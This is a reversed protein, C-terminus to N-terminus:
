KVPKPDVQHSQIWQNFEDVPIPRCIHFGQAQECNLSRLVDLTEDNEVGEAVVALGFSHALGITSRVIVDDAEDTLMDCVFSRDIKLTQIPLKKLYSLSSYGTGFDDIALHIGLDHFDAVVQMARQPDTIIASETIEIELLHNPIDFEKLLASVQEPCRLDVLNRASLNVAVPIEYGQDLWNRVQQLATRIVWSSLPHIIETMEALPIFDGPPVMGHKPHQWRLLAECGTCVGTALDIRPQYYLMLHNDRMAVSLDALMLLRQTSHSDYNTDYFAHSQGHTKAYYMAVDSCRLLAHSNEGHDPYLAIGISAGIELEMGEISLPKKLSQNLKQALDVAAEKNPIDYQLVAFEDGGLRYLEAREKELLINMRKAMRQLVVDGIGHGLTDNVDKFRNLDLLFVALQKNNDTAALIGQSAMKHLSERNPLATLADHSAQYELKAQSELLAAEASRRASVDRVTGMVCYDGDILVRSLTVEADFLEGDFRRHVWEFTLQKGNLTAALNVEALKESESGDPQVHPSIREARIGILQERTCRFMTTSVPNCEIITGAKLIFISDMTSEFLTRFRSERDRMSNFLYLQSLLESISAIFDMEMPSWKRKQGVPEMCLVGRVQGEVRITADLMSHINLPKLYGEAFEKTRSDTRADNAAVVREFSLATFYRPYAHGQLVLGQEFCDREELYLCSCEMFNMNDKIQWISARQVGLANACTRTIHRLAEGLSGGWVEPTKSLAVYTDTLLRSTDTSNVLPSESM